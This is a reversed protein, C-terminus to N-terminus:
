YFLNQDCSDPFAIRVRATQGALILFLMSSILVFTNYYFSGPFAIRVQGKCSKRKSRPQQARILLGKMEGAWRCQGGQQLVIARNNSRIFSGKRGGTHISYVM